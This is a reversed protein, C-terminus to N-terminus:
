IKKSEMEFLKVAGLVNWFLVAFSAFALLCGIAFFIKAFISICFVVIASWHLYLEINAAKDTIMERVTPTDWKGMSTLHFWALFPVIKNIMAKIVSGIFGLGFFLTFIFKQGPLEFFTSYAWFTLGTILMLLATQWLKLSADSMLRRREKLKKLAVVGFALFAIWIVIKAYIASAPIFLALSSFFIVYPWAKCFKPFEPAVYFMPLVQHAVSIVLVGVFGFVSLIIHTNALDMHSAGIHNMAHSSLLHVGLGISILAVVISLRIGKVTQSIEGQKASIKFLLMGFFLVATLLLITTAVFLFPRYLVFGAFFTAAGISLGFFSAKIIKPSDIKIGGVVPLMQTLSGFIANLLFGITFLHVSAIIFPDYRNPEHAFALAFFSLSGFAAAALFFPYVGRFPPADSLSLGATNM